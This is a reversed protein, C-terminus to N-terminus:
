ISSKFLNYITSSISGHHGAILDLVVIREEFFLFKISGDIATAAIPIEGSYKSLSKLVNPNRNSDKHM